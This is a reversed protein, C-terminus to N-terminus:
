YNNMKRYQKAYKYYNPDNQGKGKTKKNLYQDENYADRAVQYGVKLFDLLSNASPKTIAKSAAKSGLKYAHKAEAGIASFSDMLNYKAPAAKKKSPKAKPKGSNKPAM